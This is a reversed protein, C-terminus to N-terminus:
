VWLCGEVLLVLEVLKEKSLELELPGLELELLGLELEWPELEVVLLQEDLLDLVLEWLELM